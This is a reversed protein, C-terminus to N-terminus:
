GLQVVDRVPLPADLVSHQPVYAVARARRSRDLLAADEGDLHISGEYPLLGAVAKLVTSKGAGNPGLLVTLARAPAAFSLRDVVVRRGRQVVLDRVELRAEAM